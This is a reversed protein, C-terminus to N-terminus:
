NVGPIVRQPAMAAVAARILEDLVAMDVDALRKIYLCAKGQRHRGLRQLLGTHADFGPMLYVSLEAKRPSFAVLPWEGAQGSAYRYAYRGFGVIADGWLVGAEGTAQQMLRALALCDARREASGQSAIFDPVPADTPLTKATSSM